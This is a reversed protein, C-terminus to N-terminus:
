NSFRAGFRDRQRLYERFARLGPLSEHDKARNSAVKSAIIDDM